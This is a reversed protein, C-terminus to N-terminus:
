DGQEGAAYGLARLAELLAPDVLQGDGSPSAAVHAAQWADLLNRLRTAVEPNAAAVNERELPDRGPDFLEDARGQCRLFHWSLTTVSLEEGRLFPSPPRRLEFPALSRREAIAPRDELEEGALLGVLSRGLYPQACPVELLELLTPMLDLLTVLAGQVTPGAPGVGPPTWLILPVRLEHRRLFEGHDFAYGFPDLLEDLTEGHDSLVVVITRERLGLRDLEDLLLGLQRDAFRIEADYADIAGRVIEPGFAARDPVFDRAKPQPGSPAGFLLCEEEPPAYWTHPDFLHVFCFFRERAHESLWAQARVRTEDGRREERDPHDYIGFGQDLGFRPHLPVASVFAATSFGREALREALTHASAPVSEGNARAGLQRPHLSCFLAAHAPLTTPMVTFASEFRHGSAALLDLNPTTPRAYGYCSLHDARTTDISVLLLNAPVGPSVEAGCGALFLLCLGLLLAIM